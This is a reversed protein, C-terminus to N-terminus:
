SGNNTDCAVKDVLMLLADCHAVACIILRYREELGVLVGNALWSRVPNDVDTAFTTRPKTNPMQANPHPFGLTEAGSGGWGAAWGLGWGIKGSVM